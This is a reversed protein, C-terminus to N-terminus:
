LSNGSCPLVSAFTTQQVIFKSPRAVTYRNQLSASITDCSTFPYVLDAWGRWVMLVCLLCGWFDVWSKIERTQTLNNRRDLIRKCCLDLPGGSFKFGSWLYVSVGDDICVSPATPSIAKCSRRTWVTVEAVFWITTVHCCYFGITYHMSSDSVRLCAWEVEAPFITDRTSSQHFAYQLQMGHHWMRICSSSTSTPPGNRRRSPFLSICVFFM